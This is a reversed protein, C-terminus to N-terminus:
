LDESWTMGVGITASQTSEIAFTLTEGPALYLNLETVDEAMSNGVAVIANYEVNGGTVTTGAVDVSVVSNGSTITTGNDSTSGDHPTYAPTGGLTANKILRLYTIGNGAGGTNSGFSLTRVRVLAGNTITNYTTANKLTFAAVQTTVTTKTTSQGHRPGLLAVKGEVAAMGSGAKVVINTSNTTNEAAWLLPMSPNYLSPVTNANAYQIVHVLNFNGTTAEEVYFYLAGFGLYQYKIQYVNGKTPDLLQGSPNSASGTGDMVDVNWSAKPVCTMAGAKVLCIGFVDEDYGFFLGNELDPFGMGAYQYSGEVGTSFLATFRALAGQGPRYKLNRSSYVVASSSTAATTSVSVMGSGNTVSGSGTILTKTTVNNVGYVFDIQIAPTADAVMVEGFATKPELIATQLHGQNNIGVNKYNDGLTKGVIISRGLNAVMRPSIFADLGLIQPSLATNLFKTDFYFDTQGTEDCTFRYRVYPTFAPASFMQYGSGGVYPIILTRLIDSGAADRVFDVTVTGNKDSLVDTQVQSYGILSLVGSDYTQGNTLLAATSFAITTEGAVEVSGGIGGDVGNFWDSSVAQEETVTPTYTSNLQLVIQELSRVLQNFQEPSYQQTAANPLRVNNIKSM